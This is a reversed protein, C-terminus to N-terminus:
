SRNEDEIEDIEEMASIKQKKEQMTIAEKGNGFTRRPNRCMDCSCPVRTKRYRGVFKNKIKEDHIYKYDEMLNFHKLAKGHGVRLRTARM